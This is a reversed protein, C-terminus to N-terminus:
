KPNNGDILVMAKLPCVRGRQLFRATSSQGIDYDRFPPKPSGSSVSKYEVHLTSSNSRSKLLHNERLARVVGYDPTTGASM